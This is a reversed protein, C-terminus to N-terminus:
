FVTMDAVVRSPKYISDGAFIFTFTETRTLQIPITSSSQEYTVGHSSSSVKITKFLVKGNIDRLTVVASTLSIRNNIILRIGQEVTMTTAIKTALVNVSSRASGAIYYANAKTSILITHSGKSLGKTSFVAEGRSNTKATLTKYKSGTYIKATVVFGSLPKKSAKNTVTVKFAPGKNFITYQTPATILVGSKAIRISSTKAAGACNKTDKLLVVVNHTGISLSSTLFNAIGNANTTVAVNRYKTGTYVRLTLKVNPVVKKTKSNIVKVQFYKGSAYTTSLKIPSITVPARAIVINNLRTSNSIIKKSVVSATASYTGVDFPIRYTAVGNANTTVYVKKGNSFRIEIKENAIAKNSITTLSVRLIVNNYYAGDKSMKLLARPEVTTINESVLGTLSVAKSVGNDNIEAGYAPFWNDEEYLGAMVMFNGEFMEPITYIAIGNSNTTIKTSNYVEAMFTLPKSNADVSLIEDNPALGDSKPIYSLICLDVNALPSNDEANSLRFGIKNDGYDQPYGIIEMNGTVYEYDKGTINAGNEDSMLRDMDNDNELGISQDTANDNASVASMALLSILFIAMLMIKKNFM